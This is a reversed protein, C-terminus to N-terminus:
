PRTQTKSTVALDASSGVCGGQVRRAPALIRYTMGDAIAYTGSIKLCSNKTIM